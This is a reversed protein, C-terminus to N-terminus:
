HLGKSEGSQEGPAFIPFIAQGGVAQAAEEAKDRGPNHGYERMVSLDDDGAIIVPKAPFRDHLLRAVHPLNGSDFASVVPQGLAKSVTDATAYGESIVIVPAAELAALGDGGVVHFTDTKASDKAFRKAGNSQISQVSVIQGDIDQAPLLLDGATFVLKDPNAERLEKSERWNQGILIMSDDPLASADAPVVKLGGPRAQKSVLYPHDGPAAPAIALLDRIAETVM